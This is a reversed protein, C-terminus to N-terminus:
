IGGLYLSVTFYAISYAKRNRDIATYFTPLMTLDELNAGLIENSLGFMDGRITGILITEMQQTFHLMDRTMQTPDTGSERSSFMVQIARNPFYQGISQDNYKTKTSAVGVFPFLNNPFHIFDDRTEIAPLLGQYGLGDVREEDIQSVVYDSISMFLRELDIAM